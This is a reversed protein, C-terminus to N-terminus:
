LNMGNHVHVRIYWLDLHYESVNKCWPQTVKSFCKNLQM